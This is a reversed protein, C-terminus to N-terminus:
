YRDHGDDQMHIRHWTLIDSDAFVGKGCPIIIQDGKEGIARCVKSLGNYGYKQYSRFPTNSVIMFDQKKHTGEAMNCIEYYVDSELNVSSLKKGCFSHMTMQNGDKTIYRVLRLSVATLYGIIIIFIAAGIILIYDESDRSWAGFILTAALIILIMAINFVVCRRWYSSVYVKMCMVLVTEDEGSLADLFDRYLAITAVVMGVAVNREDRRWFQVFRSIICM